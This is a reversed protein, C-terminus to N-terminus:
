KKIKNLTTSSHSTVSKKREWRPVPSISQLHIQRTIPAFIRGGRQDHNLHAPRRTERWWQKQQLWSLLEWVKQNPVWKVYNFIGSFRLYSKNMHTIFNYFLFISQVLKGNSHLLNGQFKTVKFCKHNWLYYLNPIQTHNAPDEVEPDKM